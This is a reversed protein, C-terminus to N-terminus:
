NTSSHTLLKPNDTEYPSTLYMGVECGTIFKQILEKKRKLLSVKDQIVYVFNNYLQYIGFLVWLAVQMTAAIFSAWSMTLIPLFYVGIVAVATASATNKTINRGRQMKDTVERRTDQESSTGYESFLNLVYIKVNICKKITRRQKFDYGKSKLKKVPCGIYNGDADFWDEYRLCRSQLHERRYKKRKEIEECVYFNDVRDIYQTANTCAENYKIEEDLWYASNYGKSFGNEGLSQKIMVGCIISIVSQALLVFPNLNQFELKVMNYFIYVVATVVVLLDMALSKLYRKPNQKIDDLTM